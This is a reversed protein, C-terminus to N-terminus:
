YKVSLKELLFFYKHTITHGESPSPSAEKEIELSDLLYIECGHMKISCEIHCVRTM